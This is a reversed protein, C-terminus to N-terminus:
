CLPGGLTNWRVLRDILFLGDWPMEFNLMRGILPCRAVGAMTAKNAFDIAKDEPAAIGITQIYDQVHVLADNIHDVLHVMLVRSYVPKCLENDESYLVTWSMTDSGWVRGKALSILRDEGMADRMESISVGQHIEYGKVSVGNMKELCDKGFQFSGQYQLLNKDKELITNMELFGCAEVSGAESEIEYPDEIRSGLMQFGGCIGIIMTGKKVEERLKHVIGKKEIELYDEITNKSGPLIIIDEGEIEEVKSIFHLDVEELRRLADFDTM